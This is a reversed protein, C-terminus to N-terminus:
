YSSVVYLGLKLCLNKEYSMDKTTCSDDRMDFGIKSAGTYLRLDTSM